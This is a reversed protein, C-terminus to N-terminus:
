NICNVGGGNSCCEKVAENPRKWTRSKLNRPKRLKPMEAWNTEVILADAKEHTGEQLQKM